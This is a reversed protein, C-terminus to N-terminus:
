TKPKPKFEGCFDYLRKDLKTPYRYCWGDWFPEGYFDLMGHRAKNFWRCNKCIMEKKDQILKLKGVM